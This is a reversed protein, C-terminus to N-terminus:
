LQSHTLYNGKLYVKQIIEQTIIVAFYLKLSVIYKDIIQRLLKAVDGPKEATQIGVDNFAKIKHEATDTRGM